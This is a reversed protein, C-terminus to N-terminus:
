TQQKKVSASRHSKDASEAIVGACTAARRFQNLWFQNKIPAALHSFLRSVAYGRIAWSPRGFLTAVNPQDGQRTIARGYGEYFDWLYNTTMRKKPIYHQVKAEGVWLGRHEANRLRDILETEDGRISNAGILGLATDFRDHKLVETKFAMNAGFVSENESLPRTTEDRKILAFAGQLRPLHRNLWHPPRTSFWPEITGGAFSIEPHKRFAQVYSKIWNRDVLVDDDTWLLWDGSANEIAANRCHCQGQHTELLKNIPLQGAHRDIVENTDDTCNNDVVILEWSVDSPIELKQMRALTRDLMEARNWTCIAVSIKM